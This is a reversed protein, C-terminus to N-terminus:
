DYAWGRTWRRELLYGTIALLLSSIYGAWKLTTLASSLLVMTPAHHPYRVLLVTIAINEAYDSAAALSPLWALRRFWGRQIAGALFLAFLLPLCLDVTWLLHLYARRGNEGLTDFLHTVSQSSYWLRMDLLPLGAALRRMRPVSGPFDWLNEALLSGIAVISLVLFGHGRGHRSNNHQGGPM